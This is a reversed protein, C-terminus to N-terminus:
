LRKKERKMRHRIGHFFAMELDKSWHIHTSMENEPWLYSKHAMYVHAPFLIIFPKMGNFFQYLDFLTNLQFAETTATVIHIHPKHTHTHFAHSVVAQALVQAKHELSSRM